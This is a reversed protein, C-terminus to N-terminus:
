RNAIPTPTRLYSSALRSRGAPPNLSMSLDDCGLSRVSAAIRQRAQPEPSTASAASMASSLPTVESQLGHGRATLGHGATAAAENLLEATGVPQLRDGL